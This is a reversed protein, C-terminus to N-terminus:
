ERIVGFKKLVVSDDLKLCFIYIGSAVFEGRDNTGDWELQPYKGKELYGPIFGNIHINKVLRGASSMIMAEVWSKQKVQFYLKLEYDRGIVYPNPFLYLITEENESPSTTKPGFPIIRISNDSYFIVAQARWYDIEPAILKIYLGTDLKEYTQNVPVSVVELQYHTYVNWEKNHYELNTLIICFTRNHQPDNFFYYIPSFKKSSDELSVDTRFSFQKRFRIEPYLHGEPYYSITDARSGTFYNWLSFAVFERNFNSGAKFLADDLAGLAGGRPKKAMREWTWRIVDPGFKKVLMHNWISLGYEHNENKLDFPRNPESFFNYLYQIYDNVDDYAYDEMWTSCAEFFFEDDARYSYALQIAHFFEHACTVRLADVGKTPFPESFNNNIRSYAIWTEPNTTKQYDFVTEGYMSRGLYVLYVDYENGDQGEDDLPERYGLRDVILKFAYDLARATEEVYDPLGNGDDDNTSIANYGSDTYHVKFYGTPSTISYPLEPRYLLSELLSRAPEDLLNRHEELYHRIFTGSKIPKQDLWRYTEPLKTPDYLSYVLYTLYTNTSLLGKNKEYQLTEILDKSFITNAFLILSYIALQRFYKM